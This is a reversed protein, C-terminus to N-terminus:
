RPLSTRSSVPSNNRGPDHGLLDMSGALHDHYGSTACGKRSGSCMLRNSTRAACRHTFHLVRDAIRMPLRKKWRMSEWTAKATNHLPLDDLQCSLRTRELVLARMSPAPSKGEQAKTNDSHFGDSLGERYQSFFPRGGRAKGRRVRARLTITAGAVGFAAVPLKALLFRLNKPFNLKKLFRFRLILMEIFM